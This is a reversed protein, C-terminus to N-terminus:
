ALPLHQGQFALEENRLLEEVESPLPQLCVACILQEMHLAFTENMSAQRDPDFTLEFAYLPMWSNSAQNVTPLYGGWFSLLSNEICSVRVTGHM